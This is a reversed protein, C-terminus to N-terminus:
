NENKDGVRVKQGLIFELISEDFILKVLIDLLMFLFLISILNLKMLYLYVLMLNLNIIKIRKTKEFNFNFVKNFLGKVSILFGLHLIILFLVLNNHFLSLILFYIFILIFKTLVYYIYNFLKM